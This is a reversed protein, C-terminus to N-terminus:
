NENKCRWKQIKLKIEDETVATGIYATKCNKQAYLYPKGSVIKENIIWGDISKGVFNTNKPELINIANEVIDKNVENGKTAQKLLSLVEKERRSVM